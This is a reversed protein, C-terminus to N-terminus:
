EKVTQTGCKRCFQSNEILPEGCKRCFCIKSTTESVTTQCSQSRVNKNYAKNGKHEDWKKCLTRASWMMISFLIVSPIAGLIVGSEKIFTTILATVFICLSWILVKM